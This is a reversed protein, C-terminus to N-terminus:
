ESLVCCAVPLDPLLRLAVCARTVCASDSIIRCKCFFGISCFRLCNKPYKTYLSLAVLLDSVLQCFEVFYDLTKALYAGRNGYLAAFAPGIACSHSSNGIRHFLESGPVIRTRGVRRFSSSSGMYGNKSLPMKLSWGWM